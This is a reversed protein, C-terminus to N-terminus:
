EQVPVKVMDGIEVPGVVNLVRAVSRRSNIVRTIEVIGITEMALQDEELAEGEEDMLIIKWRYTILVSGPKLKMPKRFKIMVEDGPEMITRGQLSKVIKGQARTRKEVLIVTGIEYPSRPEEVAPLPTEEVPEPIEVVEVVPEPIEEVVEEPEKDPLRLWFEQGPYILDPNSVVDRNIDWIERWRFPDGLYTRSIDWLTDKDVVLHRDPREEDVDDTEGSPDDEEYGDEAFSDLEEGYYDHEEEAPEGGTEQSRATGAPWAALSLLLLFTLWTKM